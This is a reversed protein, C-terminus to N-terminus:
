YDDRHRGNSNRDGGLGHASSPGIRKGGKSINFVAPGSLTGGSATTLGGLVTIQGGTPFTENTGLTIEVADSAALYSVTFNTIPQPITEKKKKARKTTVTDVQYNAANEAAAANLPAGFELTFGSLIPKGVSKGKRPRRQFLPQESIIATQTTQAYAPTTTFSFISGDTTGGM